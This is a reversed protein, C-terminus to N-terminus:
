DLIPPKNQYNNHFKKLANDVRTENMQINNILHHRLKHIDPLSKHVNLHKMDLKNKYMLFNHKAAYFLKIYNEPFLYNTNKIIEEISDYKKVLKLASVNGLKPISSCYDCGCLICFDIFKDETLQLGNILTDYDFISIIDKRKISRDVCNRILKPCGYVLSDMDETLVYDVQGVRCLESAYAEGEGDAEIYSIGLLNLIYKIDDIMERTLRTSYKELKQKEEKNETLESLKIAEEAKKKREKICDSKNDPPKGDFIFILEINLSIYNMIKFFVGTIHNTIKGESNKFFTGDRTNFLQQYIILSADVAVKKGHLKYLNIHTISDPSNKKVIQTLSKIGM